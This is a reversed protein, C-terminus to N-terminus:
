LKDAYERVSHDSDRYFVSEYLIEKGDESTLWPTDRHSYESLETASKDSLRNLVDDILSLELGNLKSLDPTNVPIYKKQEYTFYKSQMEELEGDKKMQEVVKIFEKPTPGHHNRIYTLGMLQSGYKEYYDFDIFYLLKYLVTMGVNPKSGVKQLIYLLVQKFKDLNKQPINIRIDPDDARIDKILDFIEGIKEREQLSLPREGKEIKALTPRSIDLRRALDEQSMNFKERLECVDIKKTNKDMFYAKNLMNLIACVPM